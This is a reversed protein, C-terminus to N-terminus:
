KKGSRHNLEVYLSEGLYYICMSGFILISPIFIFDFVGEHIGLNAVLIITIATYVSIFMFRIM